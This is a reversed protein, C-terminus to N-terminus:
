SPAYKYGYGRVTLFFRPNSPDEELKERIHRIHVDITREEGFYQETEWIAEILERRTFPRDPNELLYKLIRLETQTFPVEEKVNYVKLRGFDATVTGFSYVSLAADRTNLDRSRRILARIRSVLERFSFPKVMYDDAGLELGLIKDIEEDRATLMLIPFVSGEERLRKCIDFGSIDPLRIDLILIDPPKGAAADLGQSGDPAWGVEFGEDELGLKLGKAIAAEDEIILVYPKGGDGATTMMTLM